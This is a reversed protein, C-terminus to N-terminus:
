AFPHVYTWRCRGPAPLRVRPDATSVDFAPSADIVLDGRHIQPNEKLHEIITGGDM